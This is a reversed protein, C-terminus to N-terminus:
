GSDRQGSVILERAGAPPGDFRGGRDPVGILLHQAASGNGCNPRGPFTEHRIEINAQLLSPPSYLTLLILM